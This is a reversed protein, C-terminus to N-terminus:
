AASEKGASSENRLQLLIGSVILVLGLVSWITIEEGLVFHTVLLSVFPALYALNAIVATNGNDLAFAWLLYPLANCVIGNYILGTLQKGEPLSFHGFLVSGALAFVTGSAYAVFVALGKDYTERKGLVSYLAYCVADMLCFVIGAMSEFRFSRFNGNTVVVIIGIFSLVVAAAKAMTMKEKLLFCSFVIILAPWLDNVVMAQQAPMRASGMYFLLNYFFVGLSGIVAMRIVTSKPLKFLLKLKGKAGNYVALMLSAFFCTYFLVTLSDMSGQLLKSMTAMTGWMIVAGIAYIFSRKM